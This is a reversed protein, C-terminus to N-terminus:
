YQKLVGAIVPKEYKKAYDLASKGKSSVQNPDAGAAILKKVQDVNGYKVAYQLITKDTCIAKLDLSENNLIHDFLVKSEMRLAASLLHYESGKIEVCQNIDAGNQFLYGEFNRVSNSAIVEQWDASQASLNMSLGLIALILIKKM